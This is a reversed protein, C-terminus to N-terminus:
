AALLQNALRRGGSNATLLKHTAHQGATLPGKAGDRPKRGAKSRQSVARNVATDGPESVASQINTILQATSDGHARLSEWFYEENEPGVANLWAELQSRISQRRASVQAAPASPEIEGLRRLLEEYSIGLVPAVLKLKDVTANEVQGNIWRSVTNQKLGSQKAFAAQSSHNVDIWETILQGLTEM